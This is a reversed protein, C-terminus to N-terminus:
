RRRLQEITSPLRKTGGDHHRKGQGSSARHHLTTAHYTNVRAKAPQKSQGGFTNAFDNGRQCNNMRSSRGGHQRKGQGSNARRHLTATHNTPLHYTHHIDDCAKASQGRLSLPPLPLVGASCRGRQCNNLRNAGIDGHKGQRIGTSPTHHRQPLYTPLYAPLPLNQRLSQSVARSTFAADRRRVQGM